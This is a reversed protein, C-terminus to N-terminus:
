HIGSGKINGSLLNKDREEYLDLEARLGRIEEHAVALKEKLRKSEQNLRNIAKSEMSNSMEEMASVASYDITKLENNALKVDLQAIISRITLNNM